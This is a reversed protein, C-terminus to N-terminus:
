TTSDTLQGMGALATLLNAMVTQLQALTGTRVGTITQKTSGASAYFGLKGGGLRIGITGDAALFLESGSTDNTLVTDGVVTGTFFQNTGGAVALHTTATTLGVSIGAFNAAGGSLAVIINQNSSGGLNVTQAATFANATALLAATGTAPVTLTFGGLAITGGGTVTTNSANTLTGANNVGTGGNTSPLVGSVHATLDVKGWSPATAVGGSILVNGTAVDSLKSFASTSSAYLIDGVTYAVFGTGGNAVSIPVASWTGSTITGLTVISTQGAYSTSISLTNGAKTLGTGATIEGAGSFQTWVIATTGITYPGSGAVVFGAGANTTGEEVFAFAGPIENAANMDATRTLVYAVGIAGATSCVYLGNNAQTTENKVLIRDNLAVTSGDVTLVGTAVGTLVGALYTNSPLAAATGLRASGKVALGQAIADVYAKTAADQDATPDTVNTLKHSNISLDATPATLQNLSSTRVHTDFDSIDAAVPVRFTPTAPSGSAPGAFVTHATANAWSLALTGAGTIPSGGVSLEAPATLAVSTVTGSGAADPLWINGGSDYRYVDGDNPALNSIPIGWIGSVQPSPYSGTLDGSAPGAPPPPVDWIPLTDGGPLGVYLMDGVDGIPLLAPTSTADYYIIDGPSGAPLSGGGPPAFGVTASTLATLVDGPTLGAIGPYLDEKAKDAASQFGAVSGTAVAHLLGGTLDGHAHVHNAHPVASGSGPDATGLPEPDDDSLTVGGKTGSTATPVRTAPLTKTTKTLDQVHNKLKADIQEDVGARQMDHYRKADSM